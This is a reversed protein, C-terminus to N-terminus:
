LYGENQEIGTMIGFQDQPKPMWYNHDDTQRTPYYKRMVEPLLQRRCIDFWRSNNEFALEWKREDLVAKDFAKADLGELDGLGARARVRNIAEYAQKSPKGEAMNAAEAYILLVESFRLVNFFGDANGNPYNWPGAYGGSNEGADRLKGVFPQNDKTESWPTGDILTLYFTGKIRSGDGVPFEELYRMDSSWDGWGGEGGEWPRIACNVYTQDGRKWNAYLTFIFEKNTKRNDWLWLDFFVPELEFKKPAIVEWAKDRALAYNATQNLPYGAMTLYVRSLLAKAAWSTPRFDDEGKREDPLSGEADILDSVIQRYIDVVPTDPHTAAEATNDETILPIQKFWRTMNFYCLARLFKAEGVIPALAAGDLDSDKVIQLMTNCIGITKYSTNWPNNTLEGPNGVSNIDANEFGKWRAIPVFVDEAAAGLCYFEDAGYLQIQPPYAAMIFNYFDETEDFFKDATPQAAIDEDLSICGTAMAFLASTALLKKLCSHIYKM